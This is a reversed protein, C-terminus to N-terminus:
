ARTSLARHIFAEHAGIRFDALVADRIARGPDILYTLRRVRLGFLGYAEYMRIVSKDADSLLTFPLEYRQRFEQHRTPRQPSVGVVGFGAELIDTYIDRIACAERTCIPTFDAPYFYLFLPGRNLLHTLSVDRGDQDPLTFEPARSGIALM